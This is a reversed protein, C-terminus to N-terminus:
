YYVHDHAFHRNYSYRRTTQAGIQESLATITRARPCRGSVCTTASIGALTTSDSCVRRVLPTTFRREGPHKTAVFEISCALLPYRAPSANAKAAITESPCLGSWIGGSRVRLVCTWHARLTHDNTEFVSWLRAGYSKALGTICPKKRYFHLGLLLVKIINTLHNQTLLESIKHKVPMALIKLAKPWTCTKATGSGINPKCNLWRINNTPVISNATAQTHKELLCACKETIM